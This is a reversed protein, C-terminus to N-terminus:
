DYSADVGSAVIMYKISIGTIVTPRIPRSPVISNRNSWRLVRRSTHFLVIYTVM